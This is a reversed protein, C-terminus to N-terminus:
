IPLVVVAPTEVTALQHDNVLIEVYDLFSLDVEVADLENAPSDGFGGRVSVGVPDSGEGQDPIAESADGANGLVPRPGADLLVLADEPLTMERVIGGDPEWRLTIESGEALLKPVDVEVARQVELIGVLLPSGDGAQ